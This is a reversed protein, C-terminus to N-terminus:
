LDWTNLFLRAYTQTTAPLNILTRIIKGRVIFIFTSLENDLLKAISLSGSRETNEIFSKKVNAFNVMFSSCNCLAVISQGEQRAAVYLFTGIQTTGGLTALASNCPLITGCYQWCVVWIYMLRLSQCISFCENTIWQQLWFKSANITMTENAFNLELM